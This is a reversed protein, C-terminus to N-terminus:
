KAADNKAKAATLLAGHKAYFAERDLTVYDHNVAVWGSLAAPVEAEVFIADVPCEPICAGCDICLDADIFYMDDADTAVICNVPCVAVCSADKVGVCAETITYAL